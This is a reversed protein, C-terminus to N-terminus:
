GAAYGGDESASDEDACDKGTKITVTILCEDVRENMQEGYM